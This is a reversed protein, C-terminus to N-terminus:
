KQAIKNQHFTYREDAQMDWDKLKPGAGGLVGLQVIYIAPFNASEFERQKVILERRKDPDMETAVTELLKDLEPNKVQSFMGTSQLVGRNFQDPDSDGSGWALLILPATEAAYVNKIIVGWEATRVKVRFGAQNMQGAIAEAMERDKLYRGSPSDLVIDLGNPYGAEALLKKSRQPDYPLPKANPDEGNTGAILWTAPSATGQLVEEALAKRDIAYAIAERVERKMTPYDPKKTNVMFLYFRPSKKVILRTGNSGDFMPKLEPPIDAIFDVEGALLASARAAAEPIPRYIIRSFRQPGGWYDAFAKITAHDDRVHEVFQYAGTGVPKKRYGDAGVDKFYKPPIMSVQPLMNIMTPYPARTIIRATLDDVVQVEKVFQYSPRYPSKFAEDLIAEFTAKVASANFPEGNHFKVNPRLKFEWTVPDVNSWESALWPVIKGDIWRVLGEAIHDTMVRSPGTVADLANIGTVDTGFAITLDEAQVALPNAMMLGSLVFGAGLMRRVRTLM